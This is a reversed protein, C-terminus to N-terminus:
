DEDTARELDLSEKGKLAPTDKSKKKMSFRWSSMRSERSDKSKAPGLGPSSTMSDYSRGYQATDEGIDDVDGISSGQEAFANRDSNTASGSSKKFLGSEKGLRSSLSFKSSSGKRFLKKVVNESDKMNSTSASNMDSPTNSATSDLQLSERSESMSTGTHMSYTDRSVRSDSPSDDLNSPLEISPTMVEKVKGQDEKSKDKGRDKDKDKDKRFINAM